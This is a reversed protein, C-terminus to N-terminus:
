ALKLSPKYQKIVESETFPRAKEEVEPRMVIDRHLAETVSLTRTVTLRRAFEDEGLAEILRGLFEEDAAAEDTLKIQLAAKFYRGFDDGFTEALASEHDQPVPSYKNAATLLLKGNVKASSEFSSAARCAERYAPRAAALIQAEETDALSKYRDFRKKAAQWRLIHRDLDPLSVEPKEAKKKAAPKSKGAMKQLLGMPATLTASM